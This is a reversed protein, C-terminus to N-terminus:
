DLLPDRVAGNLARRFAIGRYRRVEVVDSAVLVEVDISRSGIILALDPIADLTIGDDNKGFDNFRYYGLRSRNDMDVEYVGHFRLIWSRFPVAIEYLFFAKKFVKAERGLGNIFCIELTEADADYHINEMGFQEQHVALDLRKLGDLDKARFVRTWTM